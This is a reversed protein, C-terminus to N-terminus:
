YCDSGMIQYYNFLQNEAYAVVQRDNPANFLKKERHSLPTSTASKEICSGLSEHPHPASGSAKLATELQQREKRVEKLRKSFNEAPKKTRLM